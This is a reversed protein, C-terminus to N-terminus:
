RGSDVTGTKMGAGVIAQLEQQTLENSSAIAQTQVSKPQKKLKNPM